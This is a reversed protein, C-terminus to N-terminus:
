FTFKKESSRKKDKLQVKEAIDQKGFTFILLYTLAELPFISLFIFYLIGSVNFLLRTKCCFFLNQYNDRVNCLNRGCNLYINNRYNSSMNPSGFIEAFEHM